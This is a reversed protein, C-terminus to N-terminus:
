DGKEDLHAALSAKAHDRMWAEMDHIHDNTVLHQIILYVGETLNALAESQRNTERTLLKISALDNAFLKDHGGLRGEHEDVRKHLARDGEESKEMAEKTPRMWARYGKAVAACIAFLAGIIAALYIVYDGGIALWQLFTEHSEM